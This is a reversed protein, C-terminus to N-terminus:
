LLELDVGDDAERGGPGHIRIIEVIEDFLTSGERERARRLRELWSSRNTPHVNPLLASLYRATAEYGLAARSRDSNVWRLTWEGEPTGFGGRLIDNFADLNGRWDYDDLLRTFERAFGEFDDFENGDIVLVPREGPISSVDGDDRALFDAATLGVVFRPGAFGM